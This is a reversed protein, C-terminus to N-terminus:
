PGVSLKLKRLLIAWQRRLKARSLVPLKRYLNFKWGLRRAGLGDIIVLHWGQPRRQCVLNNIGVDAFIIAHRHLYAYLEDLLRKAESPTLLGQELGAQLTILPTGDSNAIREFM